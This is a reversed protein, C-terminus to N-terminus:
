DGYRRGGSREGVGATETVGCFRGGPALLAVTVIAADSLLTVRTVMGTVTVTVPVGGPGTIVPTALAPPYSVLIADAVHTAIKPVFRECNLYVHCDLSKTLFASGVDIWPTDTVILPM